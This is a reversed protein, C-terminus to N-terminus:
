GSSSDLASIQGQEPLDMISCGNIRLPPLNCGPTPAFSLLWSVLHHPDPCSVSHTCSSSFPWSKPPSCQPPASLGQKSQAPRPFTIPRQTFPVSHTPNGPIRRAHTVPDRWLAGLRGAWQQWWIGVGFDLPFVLGM